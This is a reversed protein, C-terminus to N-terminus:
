TILDDEQHAVNAVPSGECSAVSGHDHIHLEQVVEEVQDDAAQPHEDMDEKVAQQYTLVCM